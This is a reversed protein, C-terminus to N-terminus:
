GTTEFRQRNADVQGGKSVGFACRDIPEEEL